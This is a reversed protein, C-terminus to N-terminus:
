SCFIPFWKLLIFKRVYGRCFIDLQQKNETESKFIDEIEDIGYLFSGISSYFFKRALAKSSFKYVRTFNITDFGVVECIFVKFEKKEM